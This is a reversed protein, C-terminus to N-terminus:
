CGVICHINVSRTLTWLKSWALERNWVKAIPHNATRSAELTAKQAKQATVDEDSGVLGVDVVNEM